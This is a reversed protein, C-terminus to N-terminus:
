PPQSLRLFLYGCMCVAEELEAVPAYADRFRITQVTALGISRAFDLLEAENWCWFAFRDDVTTQQVIFTPSRDVTLVRALYLWSAREALKRFQTRWDEVYQLSGQAFVLDYSAGLDRDSSVFRVSPRAIAGATAIAPLEQVTYDVTKDPLAQRAVTAYIGLGGGFDLVSLTTKGEAARAAAYAFALMYARVLESQQAATVGREQALHDEARAADIADNGLVYAWMPPCAPWAAVRAWGPENDRPSRGDAPLVDRRHLKARLARVADLLVPPTIARILTHLAPM